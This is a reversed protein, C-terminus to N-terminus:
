PKPGELRRVLLEFIVGSVLLVLVAVSANVVIGPVSWKAYHYPQPTPTEPRKWGEQQVMERIKTGFSEYVHQLQTPQVPRFGDGEETGLYGLGESRFYLTMSWGFRSTEVVSYISRKNSLWDKIYDGRVTSRPTANCWGFGGAVLMLVVATSLHIQFCLRRM